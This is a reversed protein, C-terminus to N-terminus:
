PLRFILLQTEKRATVTIEGPENEIALGDARRRYVFPKMDPTVVQTGLYIGAKVYEDLPVLMDARKKAKIQEKLEATKTIDVKGKLKKVKALLEKKREALSKEGSVSEAKAKGRLEASQPVGLPAGQSKKNELDKKEAM